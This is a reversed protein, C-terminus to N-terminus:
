VTFAPQNKARTIMYKTQFDPRGGGLYSTTCQDGTAGDLMPIRVMGRRLADCVQREFTCFTCSDFNDSSADNTRAECSRKYIQTVEACGSSSAIVAM